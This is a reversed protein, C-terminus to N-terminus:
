EKRAMNPGHCHMRRVEFGGGKGNSHRGKKKSQREMTANCTRLETHQRHNPKRQHKEGEAVVVCAETCLVLAVGEAEEESAHGRRGLCACTCAAALSGALEKKERGGEGKM